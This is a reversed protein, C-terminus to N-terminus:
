LAISGGLNKNIGCLCSIQTKLTRKVFGAPAPPSLAFSFSREEFYFQSFGFQSPEM